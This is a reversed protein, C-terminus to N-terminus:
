QSAADAVLRDRGVGIAPTLPQTAILRNLAETADLLCLLNMTIAHYGPDGVAVPHPVLEVGSEDERLFMRASVISPHSNRSESNWAAFLDPRSVHAAAHSTGALKGLTNKPLEAELFARLPPSEYDLGIGATAELQQKAHHQHSLNLVDIMAEPESALVLLYITHELMSRRVTTTEYALDNYTLVRCAQGQRVVTRHWGWAVPFAAVSRGVLQGDAVTADIADRLQVWAADLRELRDHEPRSPSM